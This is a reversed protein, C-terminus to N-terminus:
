LTKEMSACFPPRPSIEHGCSVALSVSTEANMPQLLSFPLFLRSTVDDCQLAWVPRHESIIQRYSLCSLWFHRQFHYTYLKCTGLVGISMPELSIWMWGVCICDWSFFSSTFPQFVYGKWMCFVCMPPYWIHLTTESRPFTLSIFSSCNWFMLMSSDCPSSPLHVFCIAFSHM